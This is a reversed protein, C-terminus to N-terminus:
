PCVQKIYAMKAGVTAIQDRLAQAVFKPGRDSKTHAPIGRSVPDGLAHRRDGQAHAVRIMLSERSLEDIIV